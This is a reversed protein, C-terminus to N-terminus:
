LAPEATNAFMHTFSCLLSYIFSHLLSPTSCHLLPATFSRTKTWPRVAAAHKLIDLNPLLRQVDDSSAHRSLFLSVYLCCYRDNTEFLQLHKEYLTDSSQLLVFCRLCPLVFFFVLWFLGLFLSCPMNWLCTFSISHFPVFRHWHFRVSMHAHMPTCVQTCAAGAECTTVHRFFVM